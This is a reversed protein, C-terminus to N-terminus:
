LLKDNKFMFCVNFTDDLLKRKVKSLIAFKYPAKLLIGICTSM